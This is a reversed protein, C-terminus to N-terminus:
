AHDAIAKEPGGEPMGPFSPLAEPPLDWGPAGQTFVSMVPNIANPEDLSSARLFAMGPMASNRSFIASECTGCFGRSVMNGSDAPRDFFTLTGTVSLDDERAIIHTCHGTGSSKRCDECYCHASLQPPVETAYRIAGCLCGGSLSDPM